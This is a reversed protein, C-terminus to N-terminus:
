RELSWQVNAIKGDEDLVFTYPLRSTGNASEVTLVYFHTSRNGDLALGGVYVVSSFRRGQQRSSDLEKQLQEKSNNATYMRQKLRDNMTDWMGAADYEAQAKFYREVVAPAEMQTGAAVSVAEGPTSETSRPLLASVAESKWAVGGAVLLVLLAYRVARPRLLFRVGLFLLVLAKVLWYLLARVPLLLPSRRRPTDPTAEM